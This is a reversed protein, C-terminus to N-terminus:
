VTYSQTSGVLSEDATGITIEGTSADFNQIPEQNAQGATLTCTIPCNSVTQSLQPDLDVNVVGSKRLIFDSIQSSYSEGFALQDNDCDPGILVDFEVSSSTADVDNLTGTVM